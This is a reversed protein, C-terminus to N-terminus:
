QDKRATQIAEQESEGSPLDDATLLWISFAVALVVACISLLSPASLLYLFAAANGPCALLISVSGPKMIRRSSAGFPAALFISGRGSDRTLLNKAPESGDCGRRLM